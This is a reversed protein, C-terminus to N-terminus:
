KTCAWVAVTCRDGCKKLAKAQALHAALRQDPKERITCTNFVLVDAEEPQPAEGLGLSELMSQVVGRVMEEDDVVLVLGSGTIPRVSAPGPAPEPEGSTVPLLVRMTTGRGPESEIGIGGGHGRVIGLVASLGLGRGTFKTTFFPDFMRAKTQASMGMGNDTVELFAFQGDMIDVHLFDAGAREVRAIEESLKTFDASLISPCIRRLGPRAWTEKADAATMTV